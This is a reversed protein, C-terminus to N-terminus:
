GTFFDAGMPKLFEAWEEATWGSSVIGAELGNIFVTPTVHVGRVRHYKCAWKVSQTLQNGANGTSVLNLMGRLVPIDIGDVGSAIELLDEYVQGRTKDWTTDDGM